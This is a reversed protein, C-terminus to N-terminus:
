AVPEPAREAPEREPAPKDAGEGAKEAGSARDRVARLAGRVPARQRQETSLMTGLWCGLFGIPITFIAPNDLALSGLPSDAEGPWVPNSFMILVTSSILGSLMGVVAGM